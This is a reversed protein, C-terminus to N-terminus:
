ITSHILALFSRMNAVRCHSLSRSVGPVPVGVGVGKQSEKEQSQEVLVFTNSSFPFVRVM